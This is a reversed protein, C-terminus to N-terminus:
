FYVTQVHLVVEGNQTRNAGTLGEIIDVVGSPHVDHYTGSGVRDRPHGSLCRSTGHIRRYTGRSRTPREVGKSSTMTDRLRTGGTDLFRTRVKSTVKRTESLASLIQIM